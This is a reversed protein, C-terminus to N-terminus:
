CLNLQIFTSIQDLKKTVNGCSAIYGLERPVGDSFFGELNEFYKEGERVVM